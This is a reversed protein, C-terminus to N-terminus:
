ENKPNCDACLGTVILNHSKAQYGAPLSVSITQHLCEVKHCTMCRFHVHDHHHLGDIQCNTCLAFYQKGDDGVVKHVRGDACFSNLVRYITARDIPKEVAAQVMDHSM